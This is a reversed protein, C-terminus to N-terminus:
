KKNAIEPRGICVYNFGNKKMEELDFINRGDIINPSGMMKKIKALDAKKFVDWETIIVLADADKLMSYMDKSYEVKNNVLKKFNDMAVPDYAVVRAGENSLIRIIDIAPAERIDDTNPKFALGWVAIIKGTLDDGLMSKIKPILIRKQRRNVQSATNLMQFIYPNKSNDMATTYLAEMDKPFCSGGFGIGANLFREGIRKDLGMGKRVMEVDAGLFECINAIENIFSIKVSLFANSAYKIMEASKIDCFLITSKLPSYLEGMMKKAKDDEFGIVVRDPELFDKIASGERLFEPNSVVSFQIKKDKKNKEIIKKVVLGTGVPVTSKDVIVKYSNLNQGITEAVQHVFSLNAEGTESQPTGVAIFIIDSEEIAKKSDTTFVLNKRHKKLLDDLGPEFIPVIGSNLREIKEKDIDVCIVKNNLSAFSIGTVLGVYGVGFVAIKVNM